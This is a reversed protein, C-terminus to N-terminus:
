TKNPKKFLSVLGVVLVSKWHLFFTCLLCPKRIESLQLASKWPNLPCFLLVPSISHGLGTFGEQQVFRPKKRDWVKWFARLVKGPSNVSSEACALIRRQPFSLSFPLLRHQFLGPSPLTCAAASPVATVWPRTFGLRRELLAVDWDTMGLGWLRGTRSWGLHLIERKGMSAERAAQEPRESAARGSLAGSRGRAREECDGAWSHRQWGETM